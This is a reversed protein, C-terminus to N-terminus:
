CCRDYRNLYQPLLTVGTIDVNKTTKESHGDNQIKTKKYYFMQKM